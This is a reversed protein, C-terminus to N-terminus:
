LFARYRLRRISRAAHHSLNTNGKRRSTYSCEEFSPQWHLDLFVKQQYKYNEDQNDYPTIQAFHNVSGKHLGSLGFACFVNLGVANLAEGVPM